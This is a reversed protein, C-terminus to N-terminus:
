VGRQAAIAPDHRQPRASCGVAKLEVCLVSHNFRLVDDNRGARELRRVNRSKTGRQGGVYKLNVRTVIAIWPLQWRSRNQNNPAACGATLNGFLQMLRSSFNKKRHALKMLRRAPIAVAVDVPPECHESNPVPRQLKLGFHAIETEGHGSSPTAV